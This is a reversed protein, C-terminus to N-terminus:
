WPEYTHSRLLALAKTDGDPVTQVIRASGGQRARAEAWAVLARGLGRGGGRRPTSWAPTWRRSWVPEHSSPPSPVPDSRVSGFLARGCAAVLRHVAATDDATFPRAPYQPPLRPELDPM